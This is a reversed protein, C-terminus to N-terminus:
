ASAAAVFCIFQPLFFLGSCTLQEINILHDINHVFTHHKRCSTSLNGISPGTMGSPKHMGPFRGSRRAFVRIQEIQNANRESRKTPPRASKPPRQASKPPREASKPCLQASKPPLQAFKTPREASKPCLEASKPHRFQATKLAPPLTM